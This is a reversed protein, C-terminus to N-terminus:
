EQKAFQADGEKQLERARDTQVDTVQAEAKPAVLVATPSAIAAAAWFLLGPLRSPQPRTQVSLGFTKM